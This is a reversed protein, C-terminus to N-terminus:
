DTFSDITSAPRSELGSLRVGVLRVEKKSSKFEVYLERIVDLIVGKQTTAFKLSRNRTHTEFGRFRIKLVVTRFAMKEEVLRNYVGESLEALQKDIVSWDDTDKEFTHEAGISRMVFNAEVEVQEEANAIAYLWVASKGFKDYLIRPSFKALDGITTIGLERLSSETKSGIGSIRAVPLPALFDRVHAEDIFTLGDPKQMDSAIKASSKNPAIGISCTLSFLANLEKKIRKALKVPGGHHICIQSVDMYAEDVSAQEFKDAYKRLFSMIDSSVDYYTEFNPRMYTAEPMLRYAISIPQGSRIGHKRAEYSCAVVVGRGKGNKPDAGIILPKGLLAPNERQEVSAYFADLDVHFIYRPM